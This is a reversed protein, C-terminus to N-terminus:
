VLKLYEPRRKYELGGNSDGGSSNSSNDISSDRTDQGRERFAKEIVM